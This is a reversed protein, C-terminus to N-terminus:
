PVVEVGGSMEGEEAMVAKDVEDAWGGVAAITPPTTPPAARSSSAAARSKYRSRRWWRWVRGNVSCESQMDVTSAIGCRRGIDTDSDNTRCRLTPGSDSTAM